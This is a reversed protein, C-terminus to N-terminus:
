ILIYQLFAMVMIWLLQEEQTILDDEAMTVVGSGSSKIMTRKAAIDTGYQPWRPKGNLIKAWLCVSEM